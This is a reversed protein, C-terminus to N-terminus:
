ESREVSTPAMRKEGEEIARETTQRLLEVDGTDCPRVIKWSMKWSPGCEHVALVDLTICRQGDVVRRLADCAEAVKAAVDLIQEEERNRLLELLAGVRKRVAKRKENMTEVYLRRITGRKRYDAVEYVSRLIHWDGRLRSLIDDAVKENAGLVHAKITELADKVVEAPAKDGGAERVANAAEFITRGLRELTDRIRSDMKKRRDEERRRRGAATRKETSYIAEPSVADHMICRLAEDVTCGSRGWVAGDLLTTVYDVNQDVVSLGTADQKRGTEPHPLSGRLIGIAQLRLNEENTALEELRKVLPEVTKAADAGPELRGLAAVVEGRMKEHRKLSGANKPHKVVLQEAVSQLRSVTSYHLFRPSDVFDKLEATVKEIDVKLGERMMQVMEKTACYLKCPTHRTVVKMLRVRWDFPKEKMLRGWEEKEELALREELEATAAAHERTVTDLDEIRDSARLLAEYLGVLRAEAEDTPALMEDAAKEVEDLLAGCDFPFVGPLAEAKEIIEFARKKLVEPDTQRAYQESLTYYRRDISVGTRKSYRRIARIHDRTVSEPSALMRRLMRPFAKRSMDRDGDVARLLRVLGMFVPKWLMLRAAVRRRLGMTEPSLPTNELIRSLLLLRLPEKVTDRSLAERAHEVFATPDKAEHVLLDELEAILKTKDEEPLLTEYEIWNALGPLKPSKESGTLLWRRITRKDSLMRIRGLLALANRKAGAYRGAARGVYTNFPGVEGAYAGIDVGARRLRELLREPWAAPNKFDEELAKELAARSQPDYVTAVAARLFTEMRRKLRDADEFLKEAEKVMVAYETRPAAMEELAGTVDGKELRALVRKRAEEVSVAAALGEMGRVAAEAADVGQRRAKLREFEWVAKLWAVRSEPVDKWLATPDEGKAVASATAQAIREANRAKEGELGAEKILGDLGRAMDKCWLYKHADVDAIAMVVAEAVRDAAGKLANASAGRVSAILGKLIAPPEGDAVSELARALAEADADALAQRRWRGIAEEVRRRLPEALTSLRGQLMAKAGAKVPGAGSKWRGVVKEFTQGPFDKLLEVNLADVGKELAAIDRKIKQQAGKAQAVAVITEGRRIREVLARRLRARDIRGESENWGLRRGTEHAYLDYEDRTDLWERLVWHEAKNRDYVNIFVADFALLEEGADDLFAVRTLMSVRTNNCVVHFTVKSAKLARAAWAFRLATRYAAGPSGEGYALMQPVYQHRLLADIDPREARAATTLNELLAGMRGRARVDYYCNFALGLVLGIVVLAAFVHFLRKEM